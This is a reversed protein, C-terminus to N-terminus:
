LEHFMMAVLSNYGASISLKADTIYRSSVASPGGLVTLGGWLTITSGWWYWGGPPFYYDYRSNQALQNVDQGSFQSYLVYGNELLSIITDSYQQRYVSPLFIRFHPTLFTDYLNPVNTTSYVVTPYFAGNPIDFRLTHSDIVTAFSAGEYRIITADEPLHIIMTTPGFIWSYGLYWLGEFAIASDLQDYELILSVTGAPINVDAFLTTSNNLDSSLTYSLPVGNATITINETMAPFYFRELGVPPSNVNDVIHVSSDVGSHYFDMVGSHYFDMLQSTSISEMTNASSYLLKEQDLELVNSISKTSCLDSPSAVYEISPFATKSSNVAAQGQLPLLLMALAVIVFPSVIRVNRKTNM